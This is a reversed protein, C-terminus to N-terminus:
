IGGIQIFNVAHANASFLTSEWFKLKEQNNCAERIPTKQGGHFNM